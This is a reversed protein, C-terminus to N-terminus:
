PRVCAGVWCVLGLEVGALFLPWDLPWFPWFPLEEVWPLLEFLWLPLVEWDAPLVPPLWPPPLSPLEVGGAEAGGLLWPLPLPEEVEGGADIGGPLEGAPLVV